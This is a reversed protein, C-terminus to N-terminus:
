GGDAAESQIAYEYLLKDLVLEVVVLECPAVLALQQLKDILTRRKNPKTSSNTPGNSPKASSGSPQQLRQLSASPELSRPKFPRHKFKLVHRPRKSM